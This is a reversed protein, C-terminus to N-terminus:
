DEEIVTFPQPPAALCAPCVDTRARSERHPFAIGGGRAIQVWSADSPDFKGVPLHYTFTRTDAWPPSMREPIVVVDASPSTQTTTM